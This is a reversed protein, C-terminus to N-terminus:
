NVTYNDLNVRAFYRCLVTPLFPREPREAAGLFRISSELLLRRPLCQEESSSKKHCFFKPQHWRYISTFLYIFIVWNLVHSPGRPGKEILTYGIFTSRPCERPVFGLNHFFIPTLVDAKFIYQSENATEPGVAGIISSAYIAKVYFFSECSKNMVCLTYQPPSPCILVDAPSPLFVFHANTM